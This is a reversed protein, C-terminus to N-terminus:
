LSELDKNILGLREELMKKERQLLEKPSIGAAPRGAFGRRFGWGFGRGLGRGFGRGFGCRFGRGFGPGWGTAYGPVESGSCYGLGRGTMPGYGMPGTGDGRPM